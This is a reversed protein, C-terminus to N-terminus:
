APRRLARGAQKESLDLVACPDGPNLKSAAHFGAHYGHIFARTLHTAHRRIILWVTAVAAVAVVLLPTQGARVLWVGAGTVGLAWATITM